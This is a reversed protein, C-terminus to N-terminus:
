EFKLHVDVVAGGPGVEIASDSFRPGRLGLAPDNSFGVGEQPIGLWNQDVKGNDNRDHWAVVAYIGPPVDHVIVV